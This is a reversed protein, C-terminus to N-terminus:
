GDGVVETSAPVRYQGAIVAWAIAKATSARVQAFSLPYNNLQLSRWAEEPAPSKTRHYNSVPLLLARQRMRKDAVKRRSVAAPRERGIDDIPQFRLPSRALKAKGHRLM